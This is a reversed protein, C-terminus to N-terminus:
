KIIIKEKRMFDFLNMCRINFQAAVDPIKLRKYPQNSGGYVRSEHTVIISKEVLAVAIIWPDAVKKNDWLKVADDNYQSNNRIANMVNAYESLVSKSTNTSYKKINKHQKIWISLGDNLKAIEDYVKDILVFNQNNIYNELVSWYLPAIDMAYFQRHADIFINTDFVYKM